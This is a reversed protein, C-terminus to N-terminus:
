QSSNFPSLFCKRSFSLRRLTLFVWFTFKFGCAIQMQHWPRDPLYQWALVCLLLLILKHEMIFFVFQGIPCPSIHTNVSLESCPRHWPDSTESDRWICEGRRGKEGRDEGRRSSKGMWFVDLLEWANQNGTQNLLSGLCPILFLSLSLTFFQDPKRRCSWRSRTHAEILWLAKM